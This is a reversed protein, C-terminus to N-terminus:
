MMEIIFLGAETTAHDLTDSEFYILSGIILNDPNSDLDLKSFITQWLYRHCFMPGALSQSQSITGSIIDTQGAETTYNALASSEHQALSGLVPLNLDSDSSIPEVKINLKPFVIRNPTNFLNARTTVLFTPQQQQQKLISQQQQAQQPWKQQATNGLQSEFASRRGVPLDTWALKVGEAVHGVIHTKRQQYIEAHLLPPSSCPSMPYCSTVSQPSAPESLPEEKVTIPSYSDRCKMTM